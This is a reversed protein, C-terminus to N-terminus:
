QPRSPAPGKPAVFSLVLKQTAENAYGGSPEIEVFVLKVGGKAAADTKVVFGLEFDLKRPLLLPEQKLGAALQRRIAIIAHAMEMDDTLHASQVIIPQPPALVLTVNQTRSNSAGGKAEGSVGIVPVQVKFSGQIDRSIVGKLNLTVESLELRPEGIPVEQMAQLERKVQAIVSGIEAYNSSAGGDQTQGNPAAGAIFLLLLGGFGAIKRLHDVTM